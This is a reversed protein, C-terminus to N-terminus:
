QLFSEPPQCLLRIGLRNEQDIGPARLDSRGTFDFLEVSSRQCRQGGPIDRCVIAEILQDAFAFERHEKVIALPVVDVDRDRSIARNQHNDEVVPRRQSKHPKADLPCGDVELPDKVRHQRLRAFPSLSVAAGERFNGVLVDIGQEAFSPGQRVAKFRFTGDARGGSKRATTPNAYSILICAVVASLGSFFSRQM